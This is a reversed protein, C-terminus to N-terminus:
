ALRGGLERRTSLRQGLWHLDLAAILLRDGAAGSARLALPLFAGSVAPLTGYTGIRFGAATDGPAATEGASATAQSGLAPGALLRALWAPRHALVGALDPRSACVVEGAGDLMALFRYARLDRQLVALREPCDPDVDIQAVALLLAHASGLVSRVDANAREVQRIALAEFEARRQVYLGVLTAIGAAVMPLLCLAILLLLRRSLKM